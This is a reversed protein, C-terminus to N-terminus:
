PTTGKELYMEVAKKANGAKLYCKEANLNDDVSAYHDGIKIFELTVSRPDDIVQFLFLSAFLVKGLDVNIFNL